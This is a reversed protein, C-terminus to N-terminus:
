GDSRVGGGRETTHVGGPVSTEAKPVKRVARM